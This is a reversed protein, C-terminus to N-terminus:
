KSCKFGKKPDFSGEFSFVEIIPKKNQISFYLKKAQGAFYPNQFDINKTILSNIFSLNVDKLELNHSPFFYSGNNATIYRIHQFKENPDINEFCLFTIKDLNEILEYKQNKRNLFIESSNSSIVYHKRTTKDVIYLDKKVNQRKQHASQSQIEYNKTQAQNFKELDNKSIIFFNIFLLIILTILSFLSVLFAKKLM